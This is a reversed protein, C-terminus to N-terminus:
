HQFSLISVTNMKQFVSEQSRFFNRLSNKFEGFDFFDGFVRFFANEILKQYYEFNITNNCGQKLSDAPVLCDALKKSNKYNILFHIREGYLVALRRNKSSRKKAVIAALPLFRDSKYSKDIKARCKKSFLFDKEFIKVNKFLNQITKKNKHSNKNTLFTRLAKDMLKSLLPFSDRRIVELGKYELEQQWKGASKEQKLGAYRKKSVLISPFYIKEFELEVPFPNSDSIKQAIIKGIKLATEKDSRIKIFLSDTDGYIVECNEIENAFKIANELTKRAI